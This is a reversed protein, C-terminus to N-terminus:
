WRDIRLKEIRTRAREPGAHGAPQAQPQPQVQMPPHTRMGMVRWVGQEEFACQPPETQQRAQVPHPERAASPHQRQETGVARAFRSAGRREGAPEARLEVHAFRMEAARRAREGRQEDASQESHLAPQAAVAGRLSRRTQQLQQTEHAGRAIAVQKKHLHAAESLRPADRQAFPIWHRLVTQEHSRLNRAQDAM